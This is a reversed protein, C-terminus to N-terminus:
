GLTVGAVQEGSKKRLANAADKHVGADVVVDAGLVELPMATSQSAKASAATSAVELMQSLAGNQGELSIVQAKFKQIQKNLEDISVGRANALKQAEQLQGQLQNERGAQEQRLQSMQKAHEDKLRQDKEAADRQNKALQEKLSKLEGVASANASDKQRLQEQSQAASSEISKSLSEIKIKDQQAQESLQASESQLQHITKDREQIMDRLERVGVAPVAKPSFNPDPKKYGFKTPTTVGDRDNM